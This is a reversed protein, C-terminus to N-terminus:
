EKVFMGPTWGAERIAIHNKRMREEREAKEEPTSHSHRAFAPLNGQTPKRWVPAPIHSPRPM